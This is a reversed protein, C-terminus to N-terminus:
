SHQALYEQMCDRLFKLGPNTSSTDGVRVARAFRALPHMQGDLFTEEIIGVLAQTAPDKALERRFTHEGDKEWKFKQGQVFFDERLRFLARTQLNAGTLIAKDMETLLIAADYLDAQALNAHSFNARTLTSASFDAKGCDSESFIAASLNAESFTTERCKARAFNAGCGQISELNARTLTSSLFKASTLNCHSLNADELIAGQFSAHALRSSHFDVGILIAGDFYAETFDIDRLDIGRAFVCGSFDAYALDLNHFDTTPGFNLNTLDPLISYQQADQLRKRVISIDHYILSM